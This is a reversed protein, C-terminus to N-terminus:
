KYIRVEGNDYILNKERRLFEEPYTYRVVDSNWLIYSIGRRTNTDHLMVYAEKRILGPYIGSVIEVGSIAKVYSADAKDTQIIAGTEKPINKDAWKAAAIDSDHTYYLDYYIGYDGLHLLPTEEVFIRTFVGTMSLFFLVTLVISFLMRRASGLFGFVVCAGIAINIGLFILSQQFARFIGYESSLVPLLVQSAIFALSGFM